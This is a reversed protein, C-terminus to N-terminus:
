ASNVMYDLLSSLYVMLISFQRWQKM